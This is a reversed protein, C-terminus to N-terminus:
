GPIDPLEATRGSALQAAQGAWDDREIRGEFKLYADLRRRYDADM